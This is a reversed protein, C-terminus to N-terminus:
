VSPGVENRITVKCFYCMGLHKVVHGGEAAVAHAGGAGGLDRLAAVVGVQHTECETYLSAYQCLTTMGSVLGM